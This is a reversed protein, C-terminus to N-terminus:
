ATPRVVVLGFPILLPTRIQRNLRLILGVLARMDAPSRGSRGYHQQVFAYISQGPSRSIESEIPIPQAARIAVDLQTSVFLMVELALVTEQIDAAPGVAQLGATATRVLPPLGLLQGQVIPDYLGLTFAQQAAAAYTRAAATAASVMASAAVYLARAKLNPRAFITTKLAANQRDAADAQMLTQQAFASPGSTFSDAQGIVADEVFVDVITAEGMETYRVRERFRDIITKRTGRRPHLLEGRRTKTMAAMVSSYDGKTKGVFQLTFSSKLDGDGLDEKLSGQQGPIVHRGWRGAIESEIGPAYKGLDIETGGDPKYAFNTM